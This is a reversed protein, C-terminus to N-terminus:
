SGVEILYRITCQHQNYIIYENNILDVGGEAFVADYHIKEKKARAKLKKDSLDYCWAQHEKVKLHNGLHVDYLALYAGDSTGGAWYSGHISSYNLSKQFKDAFYLGYGFMKGTIVANAPKLQLGTELISMWNANRSGHWLLKSHNNEVSNINQTYATRRRTNTVQWVSRLSDQRDGMMRKILTKVSQDSVPQIELGYAEQLTQKAKKSTAKNANMKVQGAMVDLTEQEAALMYKVKEHGAESSLCTALHDRVNQM